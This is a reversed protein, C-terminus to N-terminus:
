EQPWCRVFEWYGDVSLEEKIEQEDVAHYSLTTTTGSEKDYVKVNWWIKEPM